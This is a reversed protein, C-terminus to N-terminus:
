SMALCERSIEKKCYPCFTISYLRGGLAEWDDRLSSSIVEIAESGCHPCQCANLNTYYPNLILSICIRNCLMGQTLEQPIPLNQRYLYSITKARELKEENTLNLEEFDILKNLLNEIKIDFFEDKVNDLMRILAVMDIVGFNAYDRDIMKSIWSKRWKIAKTYKQVLIEKTLNCPNYIKAEKLLQKEDNKRKGLDAYDFRLPAIQRITPGITIRIRDYLSLNNRLNEEIYPAPETILGFSDLIKFLRDLHIKGFITGLTIPFVFNSIDGYSLLLYKPLLSVRTIIYCRLLSEDFILVSYKIKSKKPKTWKSEYRLNEWSTKSMFSIILISKNEIRYHIIKDIPCNPHKYSLDYECDNHLELAINKFQKNLEHMLWCLSGHIGDWLNEYTYLSSWGRSSVYDNLIRTLLHM